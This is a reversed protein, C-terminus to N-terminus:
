NMCANYQTPCNSEVCDFTECGFTQACEIMGNYLDISSSAAWVICFQRCGDDECTLFCDTFEDCNLYGDLCIEFQAGCLEEICEQDDLECDNHELCTSLTQYKTKADQPAQDTCQQYCTTDGQCQFDCIYLIGCSYGTFCLSDECIETAQCGANSQCTPECERTNLNCATGASCEANSTCGSICQRADSNCVTGTGCHEDSLCGAVCTNESINCYSGSPCPCGDPLAECTGEVCVQGSTCANNCPDNPNTNNTNGTNTNGTNTNGTNTNGTNTQNGADDLEGADPTGGGGGGGGGGRGRSNGHCAVMTSAVFLLVLLSILFRPTSIM